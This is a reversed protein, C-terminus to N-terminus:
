KEFSSKEPFVAEFSSILQSKVRDFDDGTYEDNICIMPYQKNRIVEFLTENKASDNRISFYKGVKPSRPYFDGKAIQWFSFMRSSVDTSDRFRHKCARDLLFSEKEWAEVFTKKHYSYPLHLNRFGPFFDWPTLLLTRWASLGYQRSYWKTINKRIAQKKNFNRNIPILNLVNSTNYNEPKIIDGNEDVGSIHAVQLIATDCPMGHQFFMSESVPKLLFMDDNFYVFSETLGPIKHLNLEIPRCSFTPLYEEPIYDKHNVINLKPNSTDLWNPLHGCTVFHIKNVWPANKEICRFWYPLIEWERYRKIRDDGFEQGSYMAKEKQWEIDNGDVWTIVFDIKM